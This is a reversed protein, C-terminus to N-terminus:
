GGIRYHKGFRSATNDSFATILFADPKQGALVQAATNPSTGAIVETCDGKVVIDNMSCTFYRRKQADPLKVWEPYPLYSESAPIRVTYASAMKPASSANQALAIANKYFCNRLVKRYWIDKTSDPNDAARFCNYVTITHVYNDNMM